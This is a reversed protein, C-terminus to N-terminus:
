RRTTTRNTTLWATKVSKARRLFGLADRRETHYSFDARAAFARRRGLPSFPRRRPADIVGIVERGAHQGGVAERRLEEATEAAKARLRVVGGHSGAGDAAAAFAPPTEIPTPRRFRAAFATTAKLFNEQMEALSTLYQDGADTALKVYNSM